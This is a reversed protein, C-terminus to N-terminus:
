KNTKRRKESIRYALFVDYNSTTLLPIGGNQLDEENKYVYYTTQEIFVKDNITKYKKM